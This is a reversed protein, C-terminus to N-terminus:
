HVNLKTVKCHGILDVHFSIMCLWVYYFVDTPKMIVERKVASTNTTSAQSQKKDM